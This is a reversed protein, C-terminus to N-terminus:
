PHPVSNGAKELNQFNFAGGSAVAFIMAIADDIRASDIEVSTGTIRTITFFLKIKSM